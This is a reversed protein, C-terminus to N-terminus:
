PMTVLEGIRPATPRPASHRQLAMRGRPIADLESAGAPSAQRGRADDRGHQEGILDQERGSAAAPTAPRRSERELEEKVSRVLPTLSTVSVTNLRTIGEAVREFFPALRTRPSRVDLGAELIVNRLRDEPGRRKAAHIAPAVRDRFVRQAEEYHPFYRAAQHLAERAHRSAENEADRVLRNLSAVTIADKSRGVAEAVREFFPALQSRPSRVHLGAELIPTWLEHESAKRKAAHIAPVVRKLFV